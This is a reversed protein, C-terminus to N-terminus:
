PRDAIGHLRCIDTSSLDRGVYDEFNGQRRGAEYAAIYTIVTRAPSGIRAAIAPASQGARHMAIVMQPKGKHIASSEVLFRYPRTLYHPRQDGSRARRLTLGVRACALVAHNRDQADVFYLPSSQDWATRVSITADLEAVTRVGCTRLLYDVVLSPGDIVGQPTALTLDVGKYTGGRYADGTRHFYWRALHTQVSHRHAFPDAHDTSWYYFEIETLRHTEGRINLFSGNLLRGAIRSFWGAIAGATAPSPPRFLTHWSTATV